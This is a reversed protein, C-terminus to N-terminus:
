FHPFSPAGSYENACCRCHFDETRTRNRCANLGSLDLFRWSVSAVETVNQNMEAHHVSLEYP